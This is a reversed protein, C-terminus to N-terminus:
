KKNKNEKFMNGLSTAFSDSMSKNTSYAKHGTGVNLLKGAMTRSRTDTLKDEQGFAAGTQLQANFDKHGLNSFWNEHGLTPASTIGKFEPTYEIASPIVKITSFVSALDRAKSPTIVEGEMCIVNGLKDKYTQAAKSNIAQISSTKMNIDRMANSGSNQANWRDVVSRKVVDGEIFPSVSSKDIKVNETLKGVLLETHRRDLADKGKDGLSANIAYQMSTSLYDQVTSLAKAGGESQSKLKFLEHPNASTIGSAGARIDEINGVTLFDGKDVKDGVKVRLAKESGDSNPKIEHLVKGVYVDIRGNAKKIDTIVGPAKALVAPNATDTKLAFLEGLRPMGVSVSSVDGGGHFTRMVMQTMPEGISQAAITGIATGIAPPQIKGLEWGFCKQCTGNPTECAMITRVRISTISKDAMIKDNAQRNIFEGAKVIIVGGSNKIDDAACRGVLNSGKTISTGKHTGCDKETITEDQTLSWMEKTKAGPEATSLARDAMGKRSDFGHWYYEAPSLGEMHSKFIPAMQENKINMGTGVLGSMRRIVNANGRAGSQMLITVPNDAGLVSDAKTGDALTEGKYKEEIYKQLNGAAAIMGKEDNKYETKIQNIKEKIEDKLDKPTTFNAISVSMGSRTAAKFGIDKFRNILLSLGALGMKNTETKEDSIDDYLSKLLDGCQKDGMGKIQNNKIKNMWVSRYYAPLEPVGFFIWMGATNTVSNMTVASDIKIKGAVYDKYLDNWNAYMVPKGQPERKQTLYYCGLAMEHRLEIAMRGDKVSILNQSPMMLKKAEAVAKDTLPVHTAMTDGDFDANFGPCVLPNLYINRAIEGDVKDIIKPKFAMISLKHLSPARNLLVPRKDAAAQAAVLVEPHNSKIMDKAKKENDAKGSDILEKAIFPAYIRKAIDYPIAAEDMGLSPDVGIVSRGSYDVQKGLMKDKVLGTKHGLKEVIGLHEEKNKEDTKLYGQLKRMMDYTNANIDAEVTADGKFGLEHLTKNSDETFNAINRYLHTMDNVTATNNDSMVPRMYVPTVPVIRTVLDTPKLDNDKLNKLIKYKPYLKKLANPKATKLQEGILNLEKDVDVQSLYYELAEGGSKFKISKGNDFIAKEVDKIKAVSGAPINEDNSEIIVVHNKAEKADTLCLKLEKFDLPTLQTYPNSASAKTLMLSPLPMPTPLKVYGWKQRHQDDDTGFIDDDYLGGKENKLEGSSTAHVVTGRKVENDKGIMKILEADKYPTIRLSEFADDISKLERGNKLPTIKLGLANVSDKLIRLSQPTGSTAELRALAKPDRSALASFIDARTRGDGAGDGKLTISELVNYAAGYAQLGWLEGQGMSQPNRKEGSAVGMEKKPALYMKNVQGDIGSRGQIKDDVKHKLKMVYMTGVTTPNDYRLPNGNEDKVNPDYLYTKGDETIEGKTSKSLKKLENAVRESEKGDFNMVKWTKGTKEAILGANVEMLQGLNKRSPIALPSFILDVPKGDSSHPMQNDPLIKTITGKNGHRGAVKDGPKLEKNARIRVRVTKKFGSEKAPVVTVDLVEGKLYENATIRLSTDIYRVTDKSLLGAIISDKSNTPEIEKKRVIAVLVDGPGVKSGVKIIGDADLKSTDAAISVNNKLLNLADSGSGYIDEDKVNIEKTIVEETKMRQAYSKSVVIGDEYNHGEYPLYAVRTNLGLALQGNKTQWGDALLQGKKVKDGVSVVPENNIYGGQNIPFYNYKQVEHIKGKSDKIHIADPQVDVVTGAVDSHVSFATKRALKEEQTVTKDDDTACQVLPAERVSRDLTVSQKQMNAGMLMRNGDNYNGFPILSAPEGFISSAKIDIYEVKNVPIDLMNGKYRGKIEKLEIKNNVIVNPDYFALYKDYEETSSLEIVKSKDIVGKTVKYYKAYIQNNKITATETLHGLLGIKGSEPTEIPDIRSVASIQLDRTETKATRSTLGGSGLQTIKRSSASNHLPNLQEPNEVIGTSDASTATLFKKVNQNQQKLSMQVTSDTQLSDIARNSLRSQLNDLQEEIKRKIQDEGSMVYKFRLDDNNNTEENGNNIRFLKSVIGKTIDKSSPNKGKIELNSLTSDLGIGFNSPSLLSDRVENAHDLASYENTNKGVISSYLEERTTKTRIKKDAYTDVLSNYVEDNDITSQIEDNSLGMMDKLFVYGNINKKGVKANFTKKGADYELTVSPIFRGVAKNDGSVRVKTIFGDKSAYAGPKLTMQSLISKENGNVLYTGRQTKYPINLIRTTATNEITNGKSDKLVLNGVLEGEVSDGRLRLKSQTSFKDLDKPRKVTLNSVDVSNGNKLKMPFKSKVLNIVDNDMKDALENFNIKLEEM